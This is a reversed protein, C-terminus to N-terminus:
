WRWQTSCAEITAERVDTGDISVTGRGRRLAPPDPQASHIQAGSAGVLAVTEGAPIDLTVGLLAPAGNPYTFSVRDLAVAGGQGQAPHM